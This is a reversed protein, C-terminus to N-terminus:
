QHNQNKVLLQLRLRAQRLHYRSNSESIFLQDAIEKHSLQEVTYLNFVARQTDPLKQILRVLDELALRQLVEPPSTPEQKLATLEEYSRNSSNRLANLCVSVAIQRVWGALQLSGQYQGLKILARLLVQNVYDAAQQHDKSYRRCIGLVLPHFREYFKKQAAPDGALCSKLLQTEEDEGTPPPTNPPNSQM